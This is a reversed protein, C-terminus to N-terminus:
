FNPTELDDNIIDDSAVVDVTAGELLYIEFDNALSLLVSVSKDAKGGAVTALYEVAAKLATSRAIQKDTDNPYGTYNSTQTPAAGQPTAQAAKVPDTKVIGEWNWFDGKKVTEVEYFDGPNAESLVSAIAKDFSMIQKNKTENNSNVYTVIFSSYAKGAKSQKVEVPGRSLFKILM